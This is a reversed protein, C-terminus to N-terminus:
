RGEVQLNGKLEEIKKLFEEGRKRMKANPSMSKKRGGSSLRGGGGVRRDSKPQARDGGGSMDSDIWDKMQLALEDVYRDIKNIRENQEQVQISV